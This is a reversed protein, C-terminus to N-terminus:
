DTIYSESTLHASKRLGTNSFVALSLSYSIFFRESSVCVTCAPQLLASGFIKVGGGVGM